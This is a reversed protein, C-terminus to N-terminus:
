AGIGEAKWCARSTRRRQLSECRPSNTIRQIQNNFPRKGTALEAGEIDATPRVRGTLASFKNAPVLELPRGYSPGADESLADSGPAM